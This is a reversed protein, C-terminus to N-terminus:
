RAESMGAGDGIQAGIPESLDADVFEQAVL